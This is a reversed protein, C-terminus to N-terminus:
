AHGHFSHNTRFRDHRRGDQAWLFRIRVPLFDELQIRFAFPIQDSDMLLQEGRAGIKGIRRQRGKAASVFDTLLGFYGDSLIVELRPLLHLVVSRGMLNMHSPFQLRHLSGRRHQTIRAHQKELEIRSETTKFALYQQRFREEVEASARLNDHDVVGMDDYQPARAFIHNGDRFHSSEALAVPELEPRM